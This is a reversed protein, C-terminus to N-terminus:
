TAVGQSPRKHRISNFIPRLGGFNGGGCVFSVFGRINRSADGRSWGSCAGLLVLIQLINLFLISQEYNSYISNTASLINFSFVEITDVKTIRALLSVITALNVSIFAAMLFAISTRGKQSYKRVMKFTALELFALFSYIYAFTMQWLNYGEKLGYESYLSDGYEQGMFYGYVHAAGMNFASFGAIIIMTMHWTNPKQLTPGPLGAMGVCCLVLLAHPAYQAIDFLTM